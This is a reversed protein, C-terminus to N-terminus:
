NFQKGIKESVVHSGILTMPMGIGPHIYQGTYFLNSIKKSQNHPRFVATQFLTHSLGLATGKYANYRNSFDRHSFIRKVIISDRIPEGIISELHKLIKEAYQERLEDGDSLGAAVPVLIFLNEKGEPAVSPDTKSPCCVYYSPEDPWNPREFIADFHRVWDHDLVLSHHRLNAIKKNLGLYLIFGSPAITRKAWYKEPYTQYEPALLKTEAHHYDANVVVIDAPITSNKGIVQTVKKDSSIELREVENNFVFQVGLSEALKKMGEVVQGIGGLPYWVGLNFDVHSMLSYLAPTNKPAGGLFVMSYELIKRLKENHFYRKTYRDLKEFVRMKRGELMLRKNFFDTISTYDRYLFENIAVEYQYRAKDLYEILKGNAGAEMSEFLAGIKEREAPIDVLDNPGFFIRYGPDLRILEYYEKSSKGFTAFFKEFVEPMLYWSPGMDFMFGQERYISARGGAQDNKEVVTVKFNNKALLAAASLGGFGAGIVVVHKQSM